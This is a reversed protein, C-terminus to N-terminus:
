QADFERQTLRWWMCWCGGAAGRPGFLEEFDAWREPTLRHFEWSAEQM